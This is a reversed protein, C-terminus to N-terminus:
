DVAFLVVQRVVLRKVAVLSELVLLRLPTWDGARVPAGHKEFELGLIAVSVFYKSGVNTPKQFEIIKFVSMQRNERNKTPKKTPKKDTKLNKQRNKETIL